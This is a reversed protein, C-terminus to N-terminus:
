RGIDDLLEQATRYSPGSVKADIAAITEANPIEVPFPIGQQLDVQRYFLSIAQSATLGLQDFM